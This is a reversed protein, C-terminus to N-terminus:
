SWVKKLDELIKWFESLDFSDSCRLALCDPDKKGNEWYADQWIYLEKRGFKEIARRYLSEQDKCFNTILVDTSVIPNHNEGIIENMKFEESETKIENTIESCFPNFNANMTKLEKRYNIKTDLYATRKEM